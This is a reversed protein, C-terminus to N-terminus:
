SMNEAILWDVLRATDFIIWEHFEILSSLHCRAHSKRCLTVFRRFSPLLSLSLCSTCCAYCSPIRHACATPSPHRRHLCDSRTRLVCLCASATRGREDAVADCKGDLNCSFIASISLTRLHRLLMVHQFQERAIVGLLEGAQARASRCTAHWGRRFGAVRWGGIGSRMRLHLSNPHELPSCQM